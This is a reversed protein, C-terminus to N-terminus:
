YLRRRYLNKVNRAEKEAKITKGENRLSLMIGQIAEVVENDPGNM